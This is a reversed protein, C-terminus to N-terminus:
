SLEESYAFCDTCEQLVFGEADELGLCYNKMKWKDSLVCQKKSMYERKNSIAEIDSRIAATIGWKKSPLLLLYVGAATFGAVGVVFALIRLIHGIVCFVQGAFSAFNLM